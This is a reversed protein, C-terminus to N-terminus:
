RREKGDAHSAAIAEHELVPALAEILQTRQAETLTEAFQELYALRAENLRRVIERGSETVEVRRMRRDHEDELREVLGRRHLTEIARSTAPLSLGVCSGAHKLSTSPEHDLVHLLKVQTLSLDLDGLASFM